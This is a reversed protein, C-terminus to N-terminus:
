KRQREQEMPNRLESAARLMTNSPRRWEPLAFPLSINV